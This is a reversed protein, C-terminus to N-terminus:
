IWWVNEKIHLLLKILCYQEKGKFAKIEAPHNNIGPLIQSERNISVLPGAFLFSVTFLLIVVDTNM